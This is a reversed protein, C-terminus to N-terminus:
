AHTLGLSIYFQRKAYTFQCCAVAVYRAVDCYLAHAYLAPCADLFSRAYISACLDNDAPLSTTFKLATTYQRYSNHASQLIARLQQTGGLSGLHIQYLSKLLERWRKFLNRYLKIALSTKSVEHYRIQVPRSLFGHLFTCFCM